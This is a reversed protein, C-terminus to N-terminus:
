KGLSHFRQQAVVLGDEVLTEVADAALDVFFPLEKRQEVSFDQLVYGAIDFGVKPRGIGCRVRFYQKSGLRQSISRLGNHGGEGGSNKLRVGGFVVDLEDHVVILRQSSIGFFNLLGLVANGSLNMYTAPKALVLRAGGVGLHTQAVWASTKHFKFSVGYRQLLQEVVLFGLNHRNHCYGSGPNGLGVVLWAESTM